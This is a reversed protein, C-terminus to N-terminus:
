PAALRDTNLNRLFMPIGLFHSVTLSQNHTRLFLPHTLTRLNSPNKLPVRVTMTPTQLRQLVIAIYALLIIREM